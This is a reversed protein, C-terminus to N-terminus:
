IWKFTEFPLASTNSVRLIHCYAEFGFLVVSAFYDFGTMKLM